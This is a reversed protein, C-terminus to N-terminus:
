QGHASVLGKSVKVEGDGLGVEPTFLISYDDQKRRMSLEQRPPKEKFLLETSIGGLLRQMEEISTGTAFAAGVLSGMSTGAICDVPVRYEELVKLVGVHAAGRAGGGSLVVCIKPRTKASGAAAQPDALAPKVEGLMALAILFFALSHIPVWRKCGLDSEGCAQGANM